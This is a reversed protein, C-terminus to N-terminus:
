LYRKFFGEDKKWFMQLKGWNFFCSFGQQGYIKLVKIKFM